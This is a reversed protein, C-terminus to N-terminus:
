PCQTKRCELIKAIKAVHRRRVIPCLDTPEEKFVIPSYPGIRHDSKLDIGKPGTFGSPDINAWLGTVILLAFQNSILGLPFLHETLIYLAHASKSFIDLNYKYM